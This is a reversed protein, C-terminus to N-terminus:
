NSENLAQDLTMTDTDCAHGALISTQAMMVMPHTEVYATTDLQLTCMPSLSPPSVSDAGYCHLSFTNWM